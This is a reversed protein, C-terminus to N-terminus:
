KEVPAPRASISALPRGTTRVGFVALLVGVMLMSVAV